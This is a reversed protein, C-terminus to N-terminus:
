EERYSAVPPLRPPAAEAIVPLRLTGIGEIMAVVEEGPRLFRQEGRVTTGM